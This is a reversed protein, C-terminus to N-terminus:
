SATGTGTGSREIIKIDKPQISSELYVIEKIQAIQGATLGDSEVVINATDNNIIAVCEQFGKAKVLNEIDIEWSTENAIREMQTFADSKASESAAEDETINVLVELAEGRARERDIVATAFFNENETNEVVPSEPPDNVEPNETPAGFRANLYGAVAVLVLCGVILANKANIKKWPFPKIKEKVREFWKGIDPFAAEEAEMAEEVAELATEESTAEEIPDILHMKKLKKM